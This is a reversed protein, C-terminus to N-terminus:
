IPLLKDAILQDIKELYRPYEIELQNKLEYCYRLNKKRDGLIHIYRHADDYKNYFDSINSPLIGFKISPNSLYPEVPIKQKQAIVTFLLQEYLLAYHTSGMSKPLINQNLELMKISEVYFSKFFDIDNGGIIGANYVRYEPNTSVFLKISKPILTHAQSAKTLAYNYHGNTIDLQQAVLPANEIIEGFPAWIFVDGDVHIFPTEQLSYSFVKGVAWLDSPYVDLEDLKVRISTYPLDLKDILLKYGQADTVLEIDSYLKSISLCSLAWSYYFYESSLWGGIGANKSKNQILPKSWLSHVIKM